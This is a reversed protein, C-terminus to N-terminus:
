IGFNNCMGKIWGKIKLLLETNCIIIDFTGYPLSDKKNLSYKHPKIYTKYFQTLSINSIDSWYEEAVKPDLHPHIHIYGRFKNEPIDCSERFFRMMLKIAQPDSNSFSVVGKTRKAGEAWYFVIGSIFLDKKSLENIDKESNNSIFFRKESERKLRTIRRSEIVEKKIGKGSLAM